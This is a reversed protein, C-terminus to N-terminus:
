FKLRTGAMLIDIDHFGTGPRDLAHRKVAAYIEAWRVPTYVYALGMVKASDGIAAEDKARGYDASVAHRGVQYGLKFYNYKGERNVAVDRSSTAFTASIGSRSLWSVSGGTTKDDIGGPAAGEKSYGIAGALKGMGGLDGSYRLALEQVATNAKTGSSLAGTFGNFSPTDYRIRDYRSEFDQQSTTAAITPGLAGTASNRFAFAGGIDAAAAFQAVATGSLDVEVGGNAAGDGQGLSVKGWGGEFFLDVHREVFGTSVTQTAFTVLESGNSIYGFEAIAGAKLTPSIAATGAVRLRTGSISNDVHFTDSQVGDEVSMLARNIQGSVKVELGQAQAFAHSSLAFLAAGISAALTTKRHQM